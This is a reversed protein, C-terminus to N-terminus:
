LSYCKPSTAHSPIKINFANQLLETHLNRHTGNALMHYSSLVKKLELIIWFIKVLQSFTLMELFKFNFLSGTLSAEGDLLQVLSHNLSQPTALWPV